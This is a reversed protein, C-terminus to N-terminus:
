LFVQQDHHLDFIGSIETSIQYLELQLSYKDKTCGLNNQFTNEETTKNELATMDGLKCMLSEPERKMTNM